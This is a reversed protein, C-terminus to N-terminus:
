KKKRNLEKVNKEQWFIASKSRELTKASEKDIKDLHNKLFNIAALKDETGQSFSLLSNYKKLIDTHLMYRKLFNETNVKQIKIMKLAQETNNAMKKRAKHLFFFKILLYKSRGRGRYPRYRSHYHQQRKMRPDRSPEPFQQEVVKELTTQIGGVLFCTGIPQNIHLLQFDKTNNYIDMFLQVTKRGEVVKPYNKPKLKRKGLYEENAFVLTPHDVQSQYKGLYVQTTKGPPLRYTKAPHLTHVVKNSYNDGPVHPHPYTLTAGVFEFPLKETEGSTPFPTGARPPNSGPPPPNPPPSTWIHVNTVVKQTPPRCVTPAVTDPQPASTTITVESDINLEEKENLNITVEEKENFNIVENDINENLSHFDAAIDALM